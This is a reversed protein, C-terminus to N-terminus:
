AEATRKKLLQQPEKVLYLRRTARCNGPLFFALTGGGLASPRNKWVAGAKLNMDLSM